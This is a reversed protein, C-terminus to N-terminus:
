RPTYLIREAVVFGVNFLVNSAPLFPMVLLLLGLKLQRCESNLSKWCLGFLGLYFTLSVLNREDTVSKILPISGMQWDYSLNDPCLLLWFNHAPLYLFTM